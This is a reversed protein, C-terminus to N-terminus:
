RLIIRGSPGKKVKSMENRTLRFKMEDTNFFNDLIEISKNLQMLKKSEHMYYTHTKLPPPSTAMHSPAVVNVRNSAQTNAYQAPTVIPASISGIM